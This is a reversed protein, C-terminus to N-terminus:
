MSFPKHFFDLILFDSRYRSDKAIKFVRFFWCFRLYLKMQTKWSSSRFGASVTRVNPSLVRGIAIYMESLQPNGCPFRGILQSTFKHMFKVPWSYRLGNSWKKFICKDCISRHSLLVQYTYWVSKTSLLKSVCLFRYM